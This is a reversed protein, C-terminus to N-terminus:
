CIKGPSNATCAAGCAAPGGATGAGELSQRGAPLWFGAWLPRAWHAARPRASCHLIDDGRGLRPSSM